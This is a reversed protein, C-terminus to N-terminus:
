ICNVRFVYKCNWCMKCTKTILLVKEFCMKYKSIEGSQREKNARLNCHKKKSKFIKSVNLQKSVTLLYYYDLLFVASIAM